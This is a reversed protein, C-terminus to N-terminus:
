YGMDEKMEQDIWIYQIYNGTNYYGVSGEGNYNQVWPWWFLYYHGAPLGLVYVHKLLYPMLDRHIADMAAEDPFAALMEDRAANLVPDDIYSSNFMGPGSWNIGKMYSGIGSYIGALMHDYTRTGLRATWTTFDLPVIEVDVGVEKWMAVVMTIPDLFHPLNYVMIEASFGDPYGAETLLRKALEPNYGYLDAVSILEGPLVEIMDDELDELPVYADKYAEYYMIPWKLLLGEGAYLEDLIRQNDIALMLAQRVRADSYPEKDTRMSIIPSAYDDLYKIYELQPYNDIFYQAREPDTIALIDIEGAMLLADQTANDPVIYTEVGDVYPLQDGEGPGVPNTGWYNNNRVYTISDASVYDTLIFPGTGISNEWDNMDGYFEVADKPYINMYDLMTIIDIFYKPNDIDIVVTNGVVSITSAACADPYTRYMYASPLTWQRELSYAVDEATVERGNTPPKDHWHVGPRIHMTIRSQDATWEVKEALAGTKHELRNIGGGGTWPSESTGYGGAYGKIWDGTWVEEHTQKTTAARHEVIADDFGVPNATVSTRLIGGHQPEEVPTPGNGNGNGSPACGVAIMGAIATMLFIYMIIRLTNAQRM